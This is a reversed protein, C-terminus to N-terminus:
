ESVRFQCVYGNIALTSTGAAGGRWVLSFNHTGAALLGAPIIHDGSFTYVIAATTPRFAWLGNTVATGSLSSAYNIGDILVDFAVLTNAISHACSANLSLKLDAGTTTVTGYFQANDVAAFTLSTSTINTGSGRVTLALSPRAYLYQLDDSVAQLKTATLIEGPLWTRPTTWAM